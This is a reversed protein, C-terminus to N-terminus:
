NIKANNKDVITAYIVNNTSVNNCKIKDGINGNELAQIKTSIKLTETTYTLSLFDNANITYKPKIQKKSIPSNPNITSQLKAGILSNIDRITNNKISNQKMNKLQLLNETILDGKHLKIKTVPIPVFKYYKGSIKFQTMNCQLTTSFTQVQPQITIDAYTSNKCQINKLKHENKIQIDIDMEQLENSIYEHIYNKISITDVPLLRKPLAVLLLILVSKKLNM